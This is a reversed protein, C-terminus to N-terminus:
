LTIQSVYQLFQFELPSVENCEPEFAVTNNSGVFVIKAAISENLNMGFWLHNM